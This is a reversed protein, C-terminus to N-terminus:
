RWAGAELAQRVYARARSVRSKVTGVDVRLAEATEAESLECFVRLVFAARLPESLDLLARDVKTRLERADLADSQSPRRDVFRSLDDSSVLRAWASRREDIVVRAAITFLWTRFTAHGALLFSPLAKFVRLYTNQMMDDIIAANGGCMRAVFARLRVEHHAMLAAFARPDGLQARRLFQHGQEQAVATEEDAVRVLAATHDTV